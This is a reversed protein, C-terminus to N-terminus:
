ETPQRSQHHQRGARAVYVLVPCRRNSLLSRQRQRYQKAGAAPDFLLDWASGFKTHRIFRARPRGAGGPCQYDPQQAITAASVKDIAGTALRKTTTGYGIVQVEDLSHHSALLTVDMARSLDIPLSQTEYGVASFILVAQSPVHTLTFSGDIATLTGHTTHNLLVSVNALPKGGARWLEM